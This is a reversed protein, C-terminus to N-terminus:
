KKAKDTTKGVFKAAGQIVNNYQEVLKDEDKKDKLKTEDCMNDLNTIMRVLSASKGDLTKVNSVNELGHIDEVKRTAVWGDDSSVIKYEELSGGEELAVKEKVLQLALNNLDETTEIIKSLAKSREDDNLAEKYDNVFEANKSIQNIINEQTGNLDVDYLAEIQQSYDSYYALSESPLSINLLNMECIAVVGVALAISSFTKINKSKITGIKSERVLKM